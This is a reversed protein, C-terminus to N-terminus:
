KKKWTHESLALRKLESLRGDGSTTQDWIDGNKIRSLDKTQQSVGIMPLKTEDGKLKENKLEIAKMEQQILHKKYEREERRKINYNHMLFGLVAGVFIVHGRNVQM